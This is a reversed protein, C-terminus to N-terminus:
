GTDLKIHLNFGPIMTNPDNRKIPMFYNDMDMYPPLFVQLAKLISGLDNTAMIGGGLGTSALNALASGTTTVDHVHNM